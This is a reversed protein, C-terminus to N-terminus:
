GWPDDLPDIAGPTCHCSVGLRREDEACQNWRIANCDRCRPLLSGSPAERRRKIETGCDMCKM